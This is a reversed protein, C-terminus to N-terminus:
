YLQDLQSGRRCRANSHCGGAASCRRARADARRRTVETVQHVSWVSTSHMVRNSTDCIIAPCVTKPNTRTKMERGVCEQVGKLWENMPRGGPRIDWMCMEHIRQPIRDEEMRKIHRYWTLRMTETKNQLADEKKELRTIECGMVVIFLLPSLANGQKLGSRQEFWDSKEEGVKVCSMIRYYKEKVRDTIEKTVTKNELADPLLMCLYYFTQRTQQMDTGCLGLTGFIPSLQQLHSTDKAAAQKGELSRMHEHMSCKTMSQWAKSLQAHVELNLEPTVKWSGDPLGKLATQRLILSNPHHWVESPSIVTCRPKFERHSLCAPKSQMLQTSARLGESAVWVHLSVSCVPATCLSTSGLRGEGPCSQKMTIRLFLEGLQLLVSLIVQSRSNKGGQMPVMPRRHNTEASCVIQQPVTRPVM